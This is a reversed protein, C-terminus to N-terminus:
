RERKRLANCRREWIGNDTEGLMDNEQESDCQTPPLLDGSANETAPAQERAVQAGLENCEESEVRIRSLVGQLMDRHRQLDHELRDIQGKHSAEQSRLRELSKVRDALEQERTKEKKPKPAIM